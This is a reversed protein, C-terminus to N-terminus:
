TTKVVQNYHEGLAYYNLHYSLLIPDASDDVQGENSIREPEARAVSYVLIPKKLAASLVQLELHGGWDASNEVRNVYSAFNPAKEDDLECFAAFEEEKERLTKACLSGTIYVMTITTNSIYMTKAPCIFQDIIATTLMMMVVLAIYGNLGFVM